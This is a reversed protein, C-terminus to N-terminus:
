FATDTPCSRSCARPTGRVGGGQLLEPVAPTAPATSRTTTATRGACARTRTGRSRPRSPRSPSRRSRSRSRRNFARSTPPSSITKSPTCPRSTAPHAASLRAAAPLGQQYQGQYGQQQQQYNNNYPRRQQYNNQQQYGYNPAASTVARTKSSIVTIRRAANIATARRSPTTIPISRSPLM